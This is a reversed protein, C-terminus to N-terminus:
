NGPCLPNDPNMINIVYIQFNLFQVSIDQRIWSYALITKKFIIFIVMKFDQILTNM